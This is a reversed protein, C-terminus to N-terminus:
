IHSLLVEKKFLLILIIIIIIIIIIITPRTFTFGELDTFTGSSKRPLYSIFYDSIIPFFPIDALVHGFVPINLLWEYPDTFSICILFTLFFIIILIIFALM